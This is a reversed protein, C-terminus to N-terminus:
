IRADRVILAITYSRTLLDSHARKKDGSDGAALVIPGSAGRNRPQFRACYSKWAGGGHEQKENTELCSKTRSLQGANRTPRLDGRGARM